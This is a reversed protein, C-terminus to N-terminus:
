PQTSNIFLLTRYWQLYRLARSTHNTAVPPSGRDCWCMFWSWSEGCHARRRQAYHIRVLAREDRRGKGVTPKTQRHAPNVAPDARRAQQRDGCPASSAAVACRASSSCANSLARVFAAAAAAAASASARSVAVARAVMFASTRACRFPKAFRADPFSEPFPRNQGTWSPIFRWRSYVFRQSVHFLWTVRASAVILM